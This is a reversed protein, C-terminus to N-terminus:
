ATGCLQAQSLPPRALYSLALGQHIQSRLDPRFAEGSRRLGREADVSADETTMRRANALLGLGGSPCGKARVAGGRLAPVRLAPHRPHRRRASSRLALAAVTM